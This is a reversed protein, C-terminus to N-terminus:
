SLQAYDAEIRDMSDRYHSYIGVQTEISDLNIEIIRILSEADYEDVSDIKGAYDMIKVASNFASNLAVDCPADHLMATVAMLVNHLTDELPTVALFDEVVELELTGEPRTTFRFM